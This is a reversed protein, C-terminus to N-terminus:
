SKLWLVKQLDEGQTNDQSYRFVEVKNLLPLSEYNEFMLEM